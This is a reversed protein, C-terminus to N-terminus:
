YHGAAHEPDRSRRRASVASQLRRGHRCFERRGWRLRAAMDGELTYTILRSDFLSADFRLFRAGFDVSGVFNVQIRLLAQELPPVLVRLIGVIAIKPDPVEVVVGLALTIMGTPKGWGMEFMPGILFHGDVAPFMRDLDSLIRPADEVSYAPFLM